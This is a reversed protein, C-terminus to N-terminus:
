FTFIIWDICNLQEFLILAPYFYFLFYLIINLGLEKGDITYIQMSQLKQLKITFM